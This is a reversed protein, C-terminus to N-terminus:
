NQTEFEGFGSSRYLEGDVTLWMAEVGDLSEVLSLGQELTMCFLATSLADGMGSSECVVSVSSFGEAPMLTDPHIIHHYKKGDVYYFRQYSGSTVLSKDALEVYTLYDGDPDPNQLGATWSTGDPKAGIARVNGGVNLLYGEVGREYLEAAVREVAYGKAIAGVDLTMEPDTITVTNNHEDIILDNIDTHQAAASLKEMPPLEAHVVDEEGAKRYDHWISLVSGMAINTMGGTLAHMEKAYLLLDIIRRDVKVKRHAGDKVDNVTCLNEMDGFRHYVTYLKHYEGLEKIIEGSISDFEERSEAYGVVTTVTDFYEFSYTTYKEMPKNCSCLLVTEILLIVTLILVLRKKKM